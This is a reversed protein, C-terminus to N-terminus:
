PRKIIYKIAFEWFAEPCQNLHMIQQYNKRFERIETECRKQWGALPKTVQQQLLNQESVRRWEGLTEEKSSDNVLTCPIGYEGCIYELV